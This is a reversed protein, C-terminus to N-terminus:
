TRDENDHGVLMVLNVLHDKHQPIFLKSKSPYSPRTSFSRVFNPEDLTKGEEDFNESNYTEESDYYYYPSDQVHVSRASAWFVIDKKKEKLFIKKWIGKLKKMKKNGDNSHAHPSPQQFKINRKSSPDHDVVQDFHKGLYIINHSNKTSGFRRWNKIDM